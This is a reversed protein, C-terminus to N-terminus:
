ATRKWMYVTIYPQYNLNTGAVGVTTITPTVSNNGTTFSHSHGGAGQLYNIGQLTATALNGSQSRDGVLYNIPADPGDASSFNGPGFYHTHDGIASTTGSHTHTTSGLAHTHSIVVSDAYGGTEEAADFLPNAANFGVAVRGAGFAVWTGFNFLTSPNSGNVANTYISGIPYLLQLAVQVFETTAIQTTSTGPAATPATPTGVLQTNQAYFNTANSWITAIQGAAIAIGTGAPTTGNVVTANYITATYATDNFITYLKSVPPAYVAFNNAYSTSLRIIASRAEDAAGDLAQLAYSASTVLVTVYGAISDEIVTGLNTNTTNGWQGAQTGTTILEIRLNNSYAM